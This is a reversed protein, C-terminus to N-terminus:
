NKQRLVRAEGGSLDFVIARNEQLAQNEAFPTLFLTEAEKAQTEPMVIGPHDNLLYVDEIGYLRLPRHYLASWFLDPDVGTLLVTKGPHSRSERVISELMRRIAQSRNYFSLTTARGVPISVSCYIALLSAAGIRGARGSNWAAALAWGGWMALGILPITLYYDSMHDRLPLLPSLVILFWAPFFAAIWERRRLKWALFVLLGAMLLLTSVTRGASSYLGILMLRRPGLAWLWYTWVTSFISADWHMKYVGSSSLPAVHLHWLMYCASIAFLPIVKRLLRPARCLAYAAALAPFV